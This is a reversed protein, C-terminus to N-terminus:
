GMIPTHYWLTSLAQVLVFKLEALQIQASEGRGRKRGERKRKSRWCLLLSFPVHAKKVANLSGPHYGASGAPTLEQGAQNPQYWRPHNPDLPDPDQAHGRVQDTVPEIQIGVM